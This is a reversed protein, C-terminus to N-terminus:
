FAWSVPATQEEEGDEVLEYEEEVEEGEAEEGLERVAEVVDAIGHDLRRLTNVIELLRSDIGELLQRIDNLTADPRQMTSDGERGTM